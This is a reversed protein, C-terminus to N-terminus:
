SQEKALTVRLEARPELKNPARKFVHLEVIQADDKLLGGQELADLLCKLPNDIDNRRKDARTITIEVAVAGTFPRLHIHAARVTIAASEKWARAKDTLRRQGRGAAAYMGNVSPPIPLVIQVLGDDLLHQRTAVRPAPTTNASVKVARLAEQAARCSTAPKQMHAAVDAESVGHRAAIQLLTYGASLDKAIGSKVRAKRQTALKQMHAAVDTETMRTM